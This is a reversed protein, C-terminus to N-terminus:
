PVFWYYVAFVTAGGLLLVLGGWQGRGRLSWWLILGTLAIVVLLVCTLDIAWM